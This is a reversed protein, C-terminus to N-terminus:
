TGEDDHAKEVRPSTGEATDIGIERRLRQIEDLTFRRYGSPLKVHRVLGKDAWSRLTNHHVGLLRAAQSITLLRLEDEPM